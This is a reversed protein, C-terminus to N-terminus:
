EIIEERQNVRMERELVETLGTNPLRSKDELIGVM